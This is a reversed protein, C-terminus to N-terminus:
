GRPREKLQDPRVYLGPHASGPAGVRNCTPTLSGAAGPPSLEPPPPTVAGTQVANARPDSKDCVSPSQGSCALSSSPASTVGGAGLSPSPPIYSYRDILQGGSLKRHIIWWETSYIATIKRFAAWSLKPNDLQITGLYNIMEKCLRWRIQNAWAINRGVLDPLGDIKASPAM